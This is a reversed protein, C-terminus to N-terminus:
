GILGGGVYVNVCLALSQGKVKAKSGVKSKM